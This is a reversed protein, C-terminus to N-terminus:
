EKAERSEEMRVKLEKEGHPMWMPLPRESLPKPTDDLTVVEGSEAALLAKTVIEMGRISQALTGVVPADHVIAEYFNQFEGIYGGDQHEFTYTATKDPWHVSVKKEQVSMVADTGYVRMENPEQPVALEPYSATFNGVAGSVFKMNITLDSPGRHTSNADQIEASLRKVDGLLMRIQATQHVGGDLHPGGVYEARHRWPTSSFGDERPILQSVQRYAMLHVRGLEGREILHKAWRVDDRYFYNEAILLIQDPHAKATSILSRSEPENPGPPKECIVHKGAELATRPVEVQLPIPLSILVADVDDRALLDHYDKTYKDMSAGSYSAFHEAHSRDTDCFATVTFRDGLATLAPWHLYEVALGTGIIGLRISPTEMTM